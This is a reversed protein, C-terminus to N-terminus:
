QQREGPVQTATMGPEAMMPPTGGMAGNFGQGQPNSPLGQDPNAMQGYAGQANPDQPAQQMMAQQQMMQEQQMAQQMQMQMAQQKMQLQMQLEQIFNQLAASELQEDKWKSALMEPNEYGLDELLESDPVRFGGQKLMTAKNVASMEDNKDKLSVVLLLADEDFMDPGMLIEEGVIQEPNSQKMRYASVVDETYKVWKFMIHVIQTLAKEAMRKYPELSSMNMDIIATVTSYQLNSKSEMNGLKSVGLAASVQATVDQALQFVASDLAPPQFPQVDEGQKLKIEPEAGSYDVNVGKGDLTRSITVPPFARRMVSSHVITDLLTKYAYLNGKHIGELLPSSDCEVIVWNLFGLKNESNLIEISEGEGTMKEFNSTGMGVTKFVTVMRKEHSTFDVHIFRIEDKSEEVQRKIESVASQIKRSNETGNDYVAWQEIVEEASMNTVSAVWRLGYKGMSYYVNRPNHLEVCYPGARMQENQENSWSEKNKSIWYPLYDVQACIRGYKGAMHPLQRIPSKGARQNIKTLHYEAWREAQEAREKDAEGFPTIRVKPNHTDFINGLVKLAEKADTSIRKVMWPELMQGFDFEVADMDDYAIFDQQNKRDLKMAKQIMEITKREM